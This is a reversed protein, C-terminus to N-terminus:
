RAEYKAYNPSRVSRDASFPLGSSRRVSTVGASIRQDGPLMQHPLVLFLTVFYVMSPPETHGDAADLAYLGQAFGIALVSLLQSAKNVLNLFAVMQSPVGRLLHWIREVHTSRLDAHHRHVQINM